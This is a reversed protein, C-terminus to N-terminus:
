RRDTIGAMQGQTEWKEQKNWPMQGEHKTDPDEVLAPKEQACAVFTLTAVVLLLGAAFQRVKPLLVRMSSLMVQNSKFV